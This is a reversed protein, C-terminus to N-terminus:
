RAELCLVLQQHAEAGQLLTAAEDVLRAKCPDGLNM